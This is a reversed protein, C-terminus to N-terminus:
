ASAVGEPLQGSSLADRQAQCLQAIGGAALDLLIDLTERSFPEREATGQVEVLRGACTMVVNLDVDAISDEAYCMDLRPEGDVVGVSVAAVLGTLAEADVQGAEILRRLAWHLAV